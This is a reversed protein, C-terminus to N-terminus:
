FSSASPLPGTTTGRTSSSHLEAPAPYVLLPMVRFLEDQILVRERIGVITPDDISPDHIKALDPLELHQDRGANEKEFNGRHSAWDFVSRLYALARAAAGNASKRGNKPKMPEYGKVAKAFDSQHLSGLPKKLLTSFINEIAARAEPKTRSVRSGKRWMSRTKGFIPEVEDLLMALTISRAEAHAKALRAEERPDLGSRIDGIHKTAIARAHKLSIAPYPGITIQANEGNVRTHLSFTKKDRPTVRLVLGTVKTDRIEVRKGAANKYGRVYVDTLEHPANPNDTTM